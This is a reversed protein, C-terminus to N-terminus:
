QEEEFWARADDVSHAVLGWGGAAQVDKLFAAQLATIVGGPRKVEIAVFRGRWCVLLDSTGANGMMGPFYPIVLAGITKLYAAVARRVAKERAPIPKM